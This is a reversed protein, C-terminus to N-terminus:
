LPLYLIQGELDGPESTAVVLVLDEVVPGVPV